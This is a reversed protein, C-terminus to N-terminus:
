YEALQQSVNANEPAHPDPIEEYCARAEEAPGRRMPLRTVRVVRVRGHLPFALVNGVRVAVHARDVVRGDIRLRGEAIVAHAATRTKVFRAFWLYKDIRLTEDM